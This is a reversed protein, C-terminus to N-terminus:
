FEIKETWEHLTDASSKLQRIEDTTLRIPVVGCNGDKNLRTFISICVDEIGYEGHMMVSVPVLVDDSGTLAKYLRSVVSAIAYSTSGKGSIVRAGSKRVYEMLLDQDPMSKGEAKMSKSYTEYGMGSIKVLSWPIFSTDGHEGLVYAQVNKSDTQSYSKLACQLRATDLLTGTGIVQREPLGSLKLFVYTTIDVPNSVIIYKANPAAKVIEPTIEKMINVNTQILDLRSQDARRGIGSTIVVFDSGAADAYKGARVCVPARSATSQEIDLAESVAKKENIDILLLEEIDEYQMALTYAVASGVNGAGIISVKKGM